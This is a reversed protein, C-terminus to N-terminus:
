LLMRLASVSQRHQLFKAKMTGMSVDRPNAQHKCGIQTLAHITNQTEMEESTVNKVHHPNVVQCSLFCFGTM